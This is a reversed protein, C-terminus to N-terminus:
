KKPLNGYFEFRNKGTAKVYYMAKDAMNVLEDHNKTDDPYVAIGMSAGVHFSEGSIEIPQNVSDHV